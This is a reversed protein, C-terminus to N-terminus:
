GRLNKIRKNKYLEWNAGMHVKNPDISMVVCLEPFKNLCATYFSTKTRDMEEDIMM